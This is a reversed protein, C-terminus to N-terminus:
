VGKMKVVFGDVGGASAVNWTKKGPNFDRTGSFAGGAWLAGGPGAAIGAFSEDLPGGFQYVGALAGAGTYEAIFADGNGVSTRIAAKGTPNFDATSRFTGAVVVNGAPTVDVEGIMDSQDGRITRVWSFAGNASYKAVFADLGLNRSIVNFKKRPSPNFDTTGVFRGGVYTSGSADTDVDLIRIASATGIHDMWVFKGNRDYKLIYSEGGLVRRDAPGADMDTSPSYGTNFGALIVNGASDAAVGSTVVDDTGPVGFHYQYVSRGKANFKALLPTHRHTDHLPQFEGETHGVALTEVQGSVHVYGLGDTAIGTIADEGVTAVKGGWVFSGKANLKVIFADHGDAAPSLNATGASADFDTTGELAGGIYVNGAADTTVAQVPTGASASGFKVAWLYAGAPSYKAVFGDGDASTSTLARVKKSSPHFDV